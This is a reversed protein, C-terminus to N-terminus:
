RGAQESALSGVTELADEIERSWYVASLRVCNRFEEGSTFIPGPAIAIGRKLAQEYLLSADIGDPLEVWLVTGGEPSTVRTGAPFHRGVSNRVLAMQQAYTRRLSRLHRDYGGTALFEAIALQSPTATAINFLKKLAEIKAQFRGPVVWGVRYGPALTKSFSSCQIVWGQRDFAKISTPRESSFGLDGYVDDEILPIQHKALLEVLQRKRNDPMVSGLPNSFNSIVICAHVANNRLAFSLVELSIGDRPCTPIELVNLGLWQISNLFTYYVPSAIAVTQGPRCTAQLALTVAEVCGSTIVVDEPALTCGSAVLRKAVQKRLRLTGAPHAYSISEQRHRRVQSALMRNLRDIPLLDANPAGTGLPVLKNSGLSRIIRIAQDGVMVSKPELEEVSPQRAGQRVPEVARSRVFYGSQPRAEILQLDELRNYATVVTNISVQMQRSLERVSPLRDGAQFTGNTIMGGVRAAVDEYLLPKGSESSEDIQNMGQPGATQWSM